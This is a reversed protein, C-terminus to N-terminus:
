KAVEVTPDSATETEVDDQVEAEVDDAPPEPADEVVAPEPEDTPASTVVWMQVAPGFAIDVGGYTAKTATGGHTTAAHALAALAARPNDTASVSTILGGLTLKLLPAVEPFDAVMQALNHLGAAMNLALHEDTEIWESLSVPATEVTATM